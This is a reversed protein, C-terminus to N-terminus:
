KQRESERVDPRDRGFARDRLAKAIARREDPSMSRYQALEWRRAQEFGRSKKAVREV